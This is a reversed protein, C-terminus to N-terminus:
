RLPGCLAWAWIVCVFGLNLVVMGIPSILVDRAFRIELANMVFLGVTQVGACLTREFGSLIWLGMLVEMAGIIKTAPGAFREGLVRSVIERHRPIRNLIKSYLGHFVWVSAIGLAAANQASHSISFGFM